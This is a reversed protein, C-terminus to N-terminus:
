RCPLARAWALLDSFPGMPFGDTSLGDENILFDDVLLVQMGLSRAAGDRVVDNGIM